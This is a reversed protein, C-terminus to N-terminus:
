VKQCLEVLIGPSSQPHIFTILKNDSGLNPKDYVLSIGKDKLYSIANEINDVTLAIHHIGKGRKNIYKNIPSNEEKSELLEIVTDKNDVFFKQVNVDEDKVYEKKSSNMGLIDVFLFKLNEINETAVAVHDINLIKFNKNIM